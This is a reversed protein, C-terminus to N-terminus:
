VADPFAANSARAGRCRAGSSSESSQFCYHMPLAVGSPARSGAAASSHDREERERPAGLRTRRRRGLIGRRRHAVFERPLSVGRRGVLRRRQAAERRLLLGGRRRRPRRLARGVAVPRRAQSARAEVRGGRSEALAHVLERLAEQHARPAHHRRRARAPPRLDLGLYRCSLGGRARRKARRALPRRPDQQSVRVVVLAHAAPVDFPHAAVPEVHVRVVPEVGDHVQGDQPEEREHAREVHEADEDEADPVQRERVLAAHVKPVSELRVVERELRHRRDAVARLVVEEAVAPLRQRDNVQLDDQAEDDLRQIEPYDEVAERAASVALRRHQERVLGAHSAHARAVIQNKLNAFQPPVM